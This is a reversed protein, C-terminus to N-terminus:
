FRWAMPDSACLLGGRGFPFPTHPVPSLEQLMLFTAPASLECVCRAEEQCAVAGGDVWVKLRM